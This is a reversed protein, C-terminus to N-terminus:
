PSTCATIRVELRSDLTAAIPVATTQASVARMRNVTVSGFPLVNTQGNRTLRAEGQLTYGGTSQTSFVLSIPSGNASGAHRASDLRIACNAAMPNTFTLTNGAWFTPRQAHSPAAALALLGAALTTITIHRM